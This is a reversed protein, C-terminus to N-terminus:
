DTEPASDLSIIQSRANNYDGLLADFLDEGLRREDDRVKEDHADAVADGIEALIELMPSYRLEFSMAGRVHFVSPATRGSQLSVAMGWHGRALGQLFDGALLRLVGNVVPPAILQPTSDMQSNLEFGDRIRRYDTTFAINGLGFSTGFRDLTITSISRWHGRTIQDLAIPRGAGDVRAGLPALKGAYVALQLRIRGHDFRADIWRNGSRDVITSRMLVRPAFRTYFRYLAPYPRLAEDRVHADINVLVLEGAATSFEDLVNDVAFYHALRASFKPTNVKLRTLFAQDHGNFEGPSNDPPEKLDGHIEGLAIAWGDVIAAAGFGQLSVDGDLRGILTPPGPHSALWVQSATPSLALMGAFTFPAVPQVYAPAMSFVFASGHNQGDVAIQHTADAERSWPISSDAYLAAARILTSERPPMRAMLHDLAPDLKPHFLVRRLFSSARDTAALARAARHPGPPAFAVVPAFLTRQRRVFGNGSEGAILKLGHNYNLSLDREHHRHSLPISLPVASSAIALAALM